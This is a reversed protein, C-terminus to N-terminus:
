RLEGSKVAAVSREKWMDFNYNLTSTVDTQVAELSAKLETLTNQDDILQRTREM